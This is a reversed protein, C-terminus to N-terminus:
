VSFVGSPDRICHRISDVLPKTGLLVSTDIYYFQTNDAYCHVTPLHNSVIDFLPTTYISFLLPGLCSGRPVGFDMNFKDSTADDIVVQQFRGSLYSKFWELATGTFGFKTELRRLLM